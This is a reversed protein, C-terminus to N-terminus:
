FFGSRWLSGHLCSNCVTDSAGKLFSDARPTLAFLCLLVHEGGYMATATTKILLEDYINSGNLIRKINIGAFSDNAKGMTQEPLRSNLLLESGVIREPSSVIADRVEEFPTSVMKHVM